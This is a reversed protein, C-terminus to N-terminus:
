QSNALASFRYFGYFQQTIAFQFPGGGIIPQVDAHGVTRRTIMRICQLDLLLLRSLGQITWQPNIVILTFCEGEMGKGEEWNRSSPSVFNSTQSPVGDWVDYFPEGGKLAPTPPLHIPLISM